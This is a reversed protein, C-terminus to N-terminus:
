STTRLGTVSRDRVLLFPRILRVPSRIRLKAVRFDCVHAHICRLLHVHYYRSAM